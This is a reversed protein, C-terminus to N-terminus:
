PLKVKGWTLDASSVYTLAGLNEFFLWAYPRM